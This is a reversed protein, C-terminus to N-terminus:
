LPFACIPKALGSTSKILCFTHLLIGFRYFFNKVCLVTFRVKALRMESGDNNEQPISFVFTDRHEDKLVCGTLLFFNVYQLFM